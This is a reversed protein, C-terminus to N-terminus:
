MIKFQHDSFISGSIFQVQHITCVRNITLVSQCNTLLMALINMEWAGLYVVNLFYCLYIINADKQLAAGQLIHNNFSNNMCSM